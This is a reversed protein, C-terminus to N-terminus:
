MNILTLYVDYSKHIKSALEFWTKARFFMMERCDNPEELWISVEKLKGMPHAKVRYHKGTKRWMENAITEAAKIADTKNM